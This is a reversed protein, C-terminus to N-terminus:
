HGGALKRAIMLGDRVPLLLHEVRKDAKIKRNYGMIARANKCQQEEPLVVEGDYLVNDAIIFGGPRVKDFVLDFYLEYNLKDADIFVLDFTEQLGPIIAAAAGTHLVIKDVLGAQQIYDEAMDRLEEDIEISHLVGGPELGQAMCLASYGTFTGIELIRQPRIMHSLMKLIAGQLHGSLMIADGRKLNTERNLAALETTEPTTYQEAYAEIPRALLSTTM